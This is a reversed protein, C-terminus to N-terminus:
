SSFFENLICTRRAGLRRLRFCSAVVTALGFRCRCFNQMEVRPMLHCCRLLNVLNQWTMTLLSMEMLRGVGVEEGFSFGVFNQIQCGRVISCSRPLQIRFFSKLYSSDVTNLNELFDKTSYNEFEHLSSSHRHELSKGSRTRISARFILLLRSASILYIYHSLPPM